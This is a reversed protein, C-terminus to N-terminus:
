CTHKLDQHNCSVSMDVVNTIVVPSEKMSEVDVHARESKENVARESQSLVMTAPEVIM